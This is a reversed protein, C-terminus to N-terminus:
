MDDTKLQQKIFQEAIRELLKMVHDLLKLGRYNESKVANRMGKYSNVISSVQWDWPMMGDTITDNILEMVLDICVDGSTNVM